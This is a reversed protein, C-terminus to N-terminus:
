AGLSQLGEVARKWEEETRRRGPLYGVPSCFPGALAEAGLEAATQIGSKLFEHTKRRADADDSIISLNGTLASCVTCELGNQELSRRVEASPFGKFDFRAIEVGDFGHRKLEPFLATHSSDFAATWLLTNVGYKM